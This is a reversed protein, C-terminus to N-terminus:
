TLCGTYTIHMVCAFLYKVNVNFGSYTLKVDNFEYNPKWNKESAKYFAKVPNLFFIVFVPAEFDFM